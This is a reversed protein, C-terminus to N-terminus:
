IQYDIVTKNFVKIRYQINPISLYYSKCWKKIAVDSVGLNSSLLSMSNNWILNHLVEKTPRKVKRNRIHACIECRTAGNCIDINCDVCKKVQKNDSNVTTTRIHSSSTRSLKNNNVYLNRCSKCRKSHIHVEKKCDICKNVKKLKVYSKYDFEVKNSSNVLELIITELRDLSYCMSYHIQYVNWGNDILLQQRELYYPKLTGDRNYHQNGNIELAIKKEPLAIDISFYRDMIGHNSYEGIFNINKTTLWAKLKECPESKFKNHRKWPHKDPNNKLYEKRKLSQLMKSELTHRPRVPNNPVLKHRKLVNALTDRNIGIKGSIEKNTLGDIILKIITKVVPAADWKLSPLKKLDCHCVKCYPSTSNKRRTYFDSILKNVNCKSCIKYQNM